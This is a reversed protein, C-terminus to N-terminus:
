VTLVLSTEFRICLFKGVLFLIVVVHLHTCVCTPLTPNEVVSLVSDLSILRNVLFRM